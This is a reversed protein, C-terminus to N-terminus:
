TCEGASCTPTPWACECAAGWQGGGSCTQVGNGSCQKAGPTCARTCMGGVCGESPDCVHDCSGCHHCDTQLDVCINGCFTMGADAGGHGGAGDGGGMGPAGGGVEPAGGAGSDAAGRSGGTSVMGGVGSAGGAGSGVAGSGGTASSGGTGTGGGGEPRGGDLGSQCSAASVSNTDMTVAGNRALARGSVSAGTTLTISTLAVISGIFTSGTGVTASSGVQWYVNCSNGGDVMRVSSGSATTLTSGIQFIFVAAPDGQADLQLTGAALGAASSGGTLQASSSFCYTGPTLRLASLDVGTLDHNCPQGALADYATTADSQARVAVANGAQITGGNVLGPPFGTVAAGPSVGLDGTVVTNGTNTVTTGALVAFRQTTGLDLTAAAHAVATSEEPSGGHRSSECAMAAVVVGPFLVVLSRHSGSRLSCHGVPEHGVTRKAGRSKARREATVQSHTM